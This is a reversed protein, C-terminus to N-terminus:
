DNLIPQELIARGLWTYLLDTTPAMIHAARADRLLVDFRSNERYALGGTLTMAENVVEEVCHAVEAKASLLALLAGEGERAAHYILQRTREIKAWLRGLKYQLHSVQGLVLGSHSHSRESLHQKAEDFAAQAIGLYTGAMATLFYPAVVHFIYWLQDGREGLLNKAPVVVNKLNLNRSSNGRMGMGNWGPGWVMGATSKELLVCSFQHVPADAEVGVTSVVYSDCFGGNTVFSKTGNLMFGQESTALLQTQPFYFHAGTGPESLALSTLHEGRAIPELFNKAQEKTAKAAIVASGVCHMGFCLATSGSAQGIIECARALGFLGQGLGGFEKPVVLGALGKQQMLRISSEPWKAQKDVEAAEKSVTSDTIAKFEKLINELEM